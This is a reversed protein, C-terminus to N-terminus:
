RLSLALRGHQAGILNRNFITFILAVLDFHLTSVPCNLQVPQAQQNEEFKATVCTGCAGHLCELLKPTDTISM